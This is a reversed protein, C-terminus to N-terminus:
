TWARPWGRSVQCLSYDGPASALPSPDSDGDHPRYALAHVRVRLRTLRVTGSGRRLSSTGRGTKGDRRQGARLGSPIKM